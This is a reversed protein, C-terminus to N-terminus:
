KESRSTKKLVSNPNEQSRWWKQQTFLGLAREPSRQAAPWDATGPGWFSIVKSDSCQQNVLLPPPAWKMNVNISPQMNVEEEGGETCAIPTHQVHLCSRPRVCVCKRTRTQALHTRLEKCSPQLVEPPTGNNRAEQLFRDPLVSSLSSWVSRAAWQLFFGKEAASIIIIILKHLYM